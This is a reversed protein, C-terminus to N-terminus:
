RSDMCPPVIGLGLEPLGPVRGLKVGGLLPWQRVSQLAQQVAVPSSHMPLVQSSADSWSAILQQLPQWQQQAAPKSANSHLYPNHGHYCPRLIDYVNLAAM